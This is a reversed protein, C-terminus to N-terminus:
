SCVCEDPPCDSPYRLCVQHCYVDSDRLEALKGIAKCDVVCHCIDPNCNPPYQMCNEKCFKNMGEVTAYSARAQCLQSRVVLPKLGSDTPKTHPDHPMGPFFGRFYLAWPNEVKDHSPPSHGTNTTIYVDACNVFTEQPGKGQAVEGTLKDKGWTNGAFYKWQIVCNTCTIGEPLKVKWKFVITKPSDEPIIFSTKGTDVVPLVYRYSLIVGDPLSNCYCSASKVPSCRGTDM